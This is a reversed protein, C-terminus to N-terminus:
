VEACVEDADGADKYARKRAPDFVYGRGQLLAWRAATYVDTPRLEPPVRPKRPKSIATRIAKLTKRPM